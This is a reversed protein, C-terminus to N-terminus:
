QWKGTLVSRLTDLPATEFDSRGGASLLAREWVLTRAIMGVRCALDMQEVLEKRPGLDSFAELYADRLRLMVPDGAAFGHMLTMGKLGVIMSAFPHAVVSDGWDYFRAQSGDVFVNKTHLDNHDLSAPISAAALQECWGGVVDRRAAIKALVDKDQPRARRSVAAMAEDFRQLMIPARMDAVGASLLSPVHPMLERQLQAYQPLVLVMGEVPDNGSAWLTTGGDPLLLWGREVDLAIPSVIWSSAVKQLL